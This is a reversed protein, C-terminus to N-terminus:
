NWRDSFDDVLNTSYDNNLISDLCSSIYKEENFTPIIITASQKKQDCM